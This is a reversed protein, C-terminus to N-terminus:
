SGHSAPFAPGSTGSQWIARKEMVFAFRESALITDLWKQLHPYPATDFWDRDSNAFQRIFPFIAMDAFTTENSMLFSTKSLLNDLKQLFEAGATRYTERPSDPFRVHYKYQDLNAKFPGDNEEVLAFIAAKTKEDDPLWHEPDQRALAWLMIDFSEELVTGDACTLVPVTAKPSATIMDAPKDKLLIDRLEVQIGTYALTM